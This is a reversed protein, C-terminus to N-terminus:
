KGEEVTEKVEEAANEVTEKVEEAANEVTEKVEEAAGEANEKVEEVTTEVAEAAKEEAKKDGNFVGTAWLVVLVIVVLACICAILTKTHKM